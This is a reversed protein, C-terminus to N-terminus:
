LSGHFRVFGEIIAANARVRLELDLAGPTETCATRPVGAHFMYDEFSGDCEKFIVGNRIISDVIRGDPMPSFYSSEIDILTRSFEGPSEGTEFTYLYFETADIDEHLSIFGDKALPLLTDLSEILIRGERSPQEDQTHCFGDNPNEGWDNRRRGARIGTPNVIPLFSIPCVTGREALNELYRLIGWCGAPEEGHFGAAVLLSPKTSRFLWIPEDGVWGLTEVQLKCSEAVKLLKARLSAIDSPSCPM